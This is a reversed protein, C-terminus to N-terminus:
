DGHPREVAVAIVNGDPDAYYAADDGWPRPAVPSLLRAGARELLAVAAPLDEVWVYLETSTTAGPPVSSPVVGTNASFASRLYLGVRFGAGVRYEVYVPVEVGVEWGFAADYFGKARALDTVALILLHTRM